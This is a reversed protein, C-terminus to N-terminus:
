VQWYTCDFPQLPLCSTHSAPLGPLSSSSKQEQNEGDTAYGGTWVLTARATFSLGGIFDPCPVHSPSLLFVPSSENPLPLWERMKREGFGWSQHTVSFLTTRGLSAKGNSSQPCFKPRLYSKTSPLSILQPYRAGPIKVELENVETRIRPSRCTQSHRSKTWGQPFILKVHRIPSRPAASDKFLM